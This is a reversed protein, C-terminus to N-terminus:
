STEDPHVPRGKPDVWILLILGITFLV